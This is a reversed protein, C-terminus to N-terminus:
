ACSFIIFHLHRSSSVGDGAGGGGRPGHRFIGRRERDARGDLCAADLGELIAVDQVVLRLHQRRTARLRARDRVGEQELVASSLSGDRSLPDLSVFAADDRRSAVDADEEAVGVVVGARVGGRSASAADEQEGELAAGRKVLGRHRELPVGGGGVVLVGRVLVWDGDGDGVREHHVVADEGELLVLAEREDDSEGAAGRPCPGRGGRSTEGEDREAAASAREGRRRTADEGREDVDDGHLDVLVDDGGRAFVEVRDVSRIKSEDNAVRRRM